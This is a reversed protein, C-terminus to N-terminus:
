AAPAEEEAMARQMEQMQQLQLQRKEFAEAKARAAACWADACAESCLRRQGGATEDEREVAFQAYFQKFCQYCCLKEEGLAVNSTEAATSEAPLKSPTSARELNVDSGGLSSWFSGPAKKEEKGEKEEKVEKVKEEQFRGGISRQHGPSLIECLQGKPPVADPPSRLMPPKEGLSRFALRRALGELSGLDLSQVQVAENSAESFSVKRTLDKEAGESAKKPKFEALRKRLKLIHGTAMGIQQMHEEEMEKVVDMCDFGHEMFLVVYRDLKLSCLFAEVELADRDQSQMAAARQLEFPQPLSTAGFPQGGYSRGPDWVELVSKVYGKTLPKNNAGSRWRGDASKGSQEAVEMTRRLLELKAEMQKAEEEMRRTDNKTINLGKARSLAMARHARGLTDRRRPDSAKNPKEGGIARCHETDQWKPSLTSGDLWESRYSRRVSARLSGAHVRDRCTSGTTLKKEVALGRATTSGGPRMSADFGLPAGLSPGGLPAGLAPAGLSPALAMGFSPMSGDQITMTPALGLADSAKVADLAASPFEQPGRQSFFDVARMVETSPPQIVQAALETGTMHFLVELSGFRYRGAGLRPLFGFGPLRRLLELLAAETLDQPGASPPQRLPPLRAIENYIHFDDGGYSGVMELLRSISQTSLVHRPFSEDLLLSILDPIM